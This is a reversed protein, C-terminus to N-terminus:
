RGPGRLPVGLATAALHYVESVGVPAPYRFLEALGAVLELVIALRLLDREVM